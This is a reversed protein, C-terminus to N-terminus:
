VVWDAERYFSIAIKQTRQKVEAIEEPSLRTSWTTINAKADRQWNTAASGDSSSIVSQRIESSYDLGLANYIARFSGEPDRSLDEHRWFLWRDGYTERYQAVRGYLINWLLSGQFVIPMQQNACQEMETRYEELYTQMLEEQALLHDFPFQWDKVKLSAVFAAPHRITLVVDCNLERYIWPLSMLALPDKFLCRYQRHNTWKTIARPVGRLGKPRYEDKFFAAVDPHDLDKLYQLVAQRQVPDTAKDIYEFWHKVPTKRMDMMLNFPEHVYQVEKSLSIMQGVWTSGSRHAGSIFIPKKAM